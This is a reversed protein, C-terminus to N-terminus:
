GVRVTTAASTPQLGRSDILVGARSLAEMYAKYAGLWHEKEDRALLPWGERYVYDMLIYKM